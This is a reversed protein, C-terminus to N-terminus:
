GERKRGEKHPSLEIVALYVHRKRPIVCNTLGQLIGKIMEKKIDTQQKNSSDKKLKRRQIQKNQTTLLPLLIM